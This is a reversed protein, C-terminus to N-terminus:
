KAFQGDDESMADAQDEMLTRLRNSAKMMQARMLRRERELVDVLSERVRAMEEDAKKREALVASESSRQIDRLQAKLYTNTKSISQVQQQMGQLQKSSLEYEREITDREAEATEAREYLAQVEDDRRFSRKRNRRMRRMMRRSPKQEQQYEGDNTQDGRGFMSPVKPMNNALRKLVSPGRTSEVVDEPYQDQQQYDDFDGDGEMPVDEDQEQQPQDWGYDGENMEDQYGDNYQQYGQDVDEDASEQPHMSRVLGLLYNALGLSLIIPVTPSTKALLSGVLTTLPGLAAAAPLQVKVSGLPTPVSWSSSSTTAVSSKAKSNKRKAVASSPKSVKKKGGFTPLGISPRKGKGKASAAARSKKNASNRGGQRQTVPDEDDGDEDEEEGLINEISPSDNDYESEEFEEYEDADDQYRGLPNRWWEEGVDEDEYEEYEEFDYEQGDPADSEIDEEDYEEEEASEMAGEEDDDSEWEYEDEEEEEVANREMVRQRRSTGPAAFEGDTEDVFLDGIESEDVGLSRLTDADLGAFSATSAAAGGRPPTQTTAVITTAAAAATGTNTTSTSRKGFFSTGSSSVTASVLATNSKGNGANNMAGSVLLLAGLFAPLRHSPVGLIAPQRARSSSRHNMKHQNRIKQSKSGRSGHLADRGEM